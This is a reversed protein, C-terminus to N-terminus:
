GTGASNVDRGHVCPGWTEDQTDTKHGPGPVFSGRASTRSYVEKSANRQINVLSILQRGLCGCVTVPPVPHGGCVRTDSGAFHQTICVCIPLHTNCLQRVRTPAPLDSTVLAPSTALIRHQLRRRFATQLRCREEEPTRPRKLQM